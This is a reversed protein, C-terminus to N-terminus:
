DGPGAGAGCCNQTTVLDLNVALPCVLEIAMFPMGHMIIQIKSGFCANKKLSSSKLLGVWVLSRLGARTSSLCLPSESDRRLCAATSSNSCEPALLVARSAIKAGGHEVESRTV